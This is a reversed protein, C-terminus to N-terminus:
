SNYSYETMWSWPELENNFSIISYSRKGGIPPTQQKERSYLIESLEVMTSSSNPSTMNLM